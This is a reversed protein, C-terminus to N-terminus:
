LGMQALWWQNGQWISKELPSLRGQVTRPAQLGRWVLDNAVIDEEHVAAVQGSLTAVIDDYAPLERYGAPVLIHIRLSLQDVSEPFLQYWAAGHAHPALLFCPYLVTAFLAQMQWPALSEIAPLAQAAADSVAPAAPMHLISWPGTNDPVKSDRAHYVPELSKGHTALHHYAEMFNEVLVKWNWHAPYSLTNAVVMEPLRFNEFYRRYDEVQPAFPAAADDLNVLVFGQWLECRFEPLRQQETAFAQVGEMLPARLLTGTTDYSWAHYPCTFLHRRGCDEAVPAGRHLCVSSLARIQGDRGHVVLLPQDLLDVTLYSGPEPLQDLRAVPWWSRRLIRERELAFIERDTYAAPPLTLAEALPARARNLAAKTIGPLVEDDRRKRQVM